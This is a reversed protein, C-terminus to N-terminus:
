RTNSVNPSGLELKHGVSDSGSSMLQALVAQTGRWLAQIRIPMRNEEVDKISKIGPNLGNVSYARIEELLGSLHEEHKGSEIAASRKLFAALSTQGEYYHLLPHTNGYYGGLGFLIAKKGRILAEMAVTGTISGVAVAEDLLEYTDHEMRILSVGPMNQIADYFWPLRERWSCHNRFTSPHEKVLLHIDRALAARFAQLAILQQAFGYGEPLTTREPQYHLFFVACDRDRPKPAALHDFRRKCAMVNLINLPRRANSAAYPRFRFPKGKHRLFRQKEYQPMASEGSLRKKQVFESSLKAEEKQSTYQAFSDLSVNVIAPRRRLGELLHFRWPLISHQFYLIKVGACEATKAFIWNFINHPTSGYIIHTVSHANLISQAQEVLLAIRATKLSSTEWLRRNARDYLMFTQHDDLIESWVEPSFAIPDRKTSTSQFDPYVLPAHILAKNHYEKLKRREMILRVRDGYQDLAECLQAADLLGPDILCTVDKMKIPVEILTAVQTIAVAIRLRTSWWATVM